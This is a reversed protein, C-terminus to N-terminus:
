AKTPRFDAISVRLGDLTQEVGSQIGAQVGDVSRFAVVVTFFLDPLSNRVLAIVKVGEGVAAM